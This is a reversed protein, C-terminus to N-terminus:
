RMQLLVRAKRAIGRIEMGSESDAAANDEGTDARGLYVWAKDKLDNNQFPTPNFLFLAYGNLSVGNAFAVTPVALVLKGAPTRYELPKRRTDVDEPKEFAGFEGVANTMGRFKWPTPSAPDTLTYTAESM